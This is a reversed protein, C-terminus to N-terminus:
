PYKSNLKPFELYQFISIKFELNKKSIGFICKIIDKLFSIIPYGDNSKM